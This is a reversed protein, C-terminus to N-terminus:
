TFATSATKIGGRSWVAAVGKEYTPRSSKQPSHGDRSEGGFVGGRSMRTRDGTSLYGAHRGQADRLALSIESESSAAVKWSGAM